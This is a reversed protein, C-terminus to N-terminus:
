LCLQDISLLVYAGIMKCNAPLTLIGIGILWKTGEHSPLGDEEPCTITLIKEHPLVFIWQNTDAIETWISTPVYALRTECAYKPPEINQYFAMECTEQRSIVNNVINPRLFLKISEGRCQDIQQQSM